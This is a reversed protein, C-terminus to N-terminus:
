KLFYDRIDYVEDKDKLLDIAMNYAYKVLETPEIESISNKGAINAITDGHDSVVQNMAVYLAYDNYCPNEEAQLGLKEMADLWTQKDWIAQPNMKEIIDNAEKKTLYNHWKVSCLQSLYEEALTPKLEVLDCMMERMTDGFIHMFKPTSSTAMIQYLEDFKKMFEKQEM